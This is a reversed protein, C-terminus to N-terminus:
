GLLALIAGADVPKTLHNDFGAAATAERDVPRTFGTLAVLRVDRGRRERLRRAVEFGDLDPLKLDVLVIDPRLTEALALGEAGSGAVSISQGGAELSLQLVERVDADDEILLVRM